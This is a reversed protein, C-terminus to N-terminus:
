RGLDVEWCRGSGFRKGRSIKEWGKGSDLAFSASGPMVSEYELAVFFKVTSAVVPTATQVHSSLGAPVSRFKSAFAKM